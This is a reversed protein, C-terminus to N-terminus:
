TCVTHVTYLQRRYRHAPRKVCGRHCEKVKSANRVANLDVIEVKFFFVIVIRINKSHTTFLTAWLHPITLDAFLHRRQVKPKIYEATRLQLGLIHRLTCHATCLTCSDPPFHKRTLNWSGLRLSLFCRVWFVIV